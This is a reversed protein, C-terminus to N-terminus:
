AEVNSCKFMEVNRWTCLGINCAIYYIANCSSLYSIKHYLGDLNHMHRHIDRQICIYIYIYIHVCVDVHTAGGLLEHVAHLADVDVFVEAPLRSTIIITTTTTTTIIIIIMM